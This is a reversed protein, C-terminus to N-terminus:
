KVTDWENAASAGVAEANSGGVIAIKGDRIDIEVRVHEYGAKRVARVARTVDAQRFTCAARGRHQRARAVLAAVQVPVTANDSM